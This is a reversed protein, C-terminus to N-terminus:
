FKFAVGANLDVNFTFKPEAIQVNSSAVIGFTSTLKYIFGGGVEALAPGAVVSDM